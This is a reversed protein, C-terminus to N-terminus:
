DIIDDLNWVRYIERRYPFEYKTTHHLGSPMAKLVDFIVEGRDEIFRSSILLYCENSYVKIIDGVRLRRYITM